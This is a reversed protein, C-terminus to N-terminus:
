AAEEDAKVPVDFYTAQEAELTSLHLRVSDLDIQIPAVVPSPLYGNGFSSVTLGLEHGPELAASFYQLPIQIDIAVGPIVPEGGRNPAHRLETIGYSLGFSEGDTRDRLEIYIQGGPGTPVVRMSLHSLGALITESDADLVGLNWQLTNAQGMVAVGSEGVLPLELMSANSPQLSDDVRWRGDQQQVEVHLDPQPGSEMLYHDFWELLDQAWDYRISNTPFAAGHESVRDPYNHQWQGYLGKTDLGKEIMKQHAIWGAHPDVNNDLLGHIMYVSGDYNELVREVFNRENWYTGDAGIVDDGSLYAAGGWGGATLWDPCTARHQVAKAPNPGPVGFTGYIVNHFTLIRSESAGNWTVLDQLGSLGSIPVITKLASDPGAHAAAMWPTSGDYSRGILGVNGNSWGQSGLWEVAQHVGLQEALGFMDFCHNSKGSGLVSIQAVAYGQPVFNSILFEGLRGSGRADADVDSETYYPGADAIVPVKCNDIGRKAVIEPAGTTANFTFFVDRSIDSFDCGPLDPMFLGLHVRPPDIPDIAAGGETAPLDIDVFVSIPELIDFLPEALTHSWNDTLNFPLQARDALKTIGATAPETVPEDTPGSSACGALVTLTMVSALLLAKAHM